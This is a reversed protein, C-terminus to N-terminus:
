IIGQIYVFLVWLSEIVNSHFGLSRPVIWGGEIESRLKRVMKRTSYKMESM